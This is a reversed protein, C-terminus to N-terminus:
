AGPPAPLAPTFEAEIAGTPAADTRGADSLRKVEELVALFAEAVKPNDLPASVVISKSVPSHGGLAQIHKAADLRDRRPADPDVMLEIQIRTAETSWHNALSEPTKFGETKVEPRPAEDLPEGSVKVKRAKAEVELTARWVTGGRSSTNKHWGRLTDFAIGSARSAQMFSGGELITHAAIKLASAFRDPNKRLEAIPTM